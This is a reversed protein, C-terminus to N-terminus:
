GLEQGQGLGQRDVGDSAVDLGAIGDENDLCHEWSQSPEGGAGCQGMSAPLGVSSPRVSGLWLGSDLRGLVGLCAPDCDTVHLGGQIPPTRGIVIYTNFARLM